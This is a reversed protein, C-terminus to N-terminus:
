KEEGGLANLFVEMKKYDYLVKEENMKEMSQKFFIQEEYDLNLM